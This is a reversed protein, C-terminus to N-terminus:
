TSLLRSSTPFLSVRRTIDGLSKHLYFIPESNPERKKSGKCTNKVSYYV